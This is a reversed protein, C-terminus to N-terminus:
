RYGKKLMWMLVQQQDLKATDKSHKTVPRNTQGADVLKIRIQGSGSEYKTTGVSKVQYINSYFVVFDDVKLEQDIVDTVAYNM